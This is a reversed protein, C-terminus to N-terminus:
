HLYRASKKLEDIKKFYYM